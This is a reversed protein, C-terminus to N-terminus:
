QLETYGFVTKIVFLVAEASQVNVVGVIM